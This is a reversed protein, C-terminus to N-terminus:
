EWRGRIASWERERMAGSLYYGDALDHMRYWSISTLVPYGLMGTALNIPDPGSGTSLAGGIAGFILGGIIPGGLGRIAAEKPTRGM